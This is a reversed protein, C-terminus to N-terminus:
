PGRSKAYAYGSPMDLEEWVSPLDEKKVGILDLRQGGTVKVVKVNYKLSVDAIKKLDEPTTVGGYM